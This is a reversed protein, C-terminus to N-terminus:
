ALTERYDVDKTERGVLLAILTLAGMVSLYIGVMWTHGSAAGWLAVAILPALAAGLISSINYAVGSGTYRVNTPFLEPLLAGMPGFTIGMLTFGITLFAQVMAGEFAGDARPALFLEFSFGFLIIAITVGILLKKRGISDALPGSVLTFIGFFVVGLIQMLVFHVYPIGLGPVYSAADFATGAKDAATAAAAAPLKTGYSLTFTTMLYFVVYTALMYFTGLVVGKWHKRLLAGLPLKVIAETKVAKQFTTSEVLRLRV